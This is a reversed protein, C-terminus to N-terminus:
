IFKAGQYPFQKTLPLLSDKLNLLYRSIMAHAAPRLAAGM